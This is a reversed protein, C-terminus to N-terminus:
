TGVAGHQDSRTTMAQHRPTVWCSCPTSVTRSITLRSAVDAALAGARARDPAVAVDLAVAGAADVVPRGRLEEVPEGLDATDLRGARVPQARDGGDLRHV